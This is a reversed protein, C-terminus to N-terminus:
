GKAWRLAAELDELGEGSSYRIYASILIIPGNTGVVEVLVVRPGFPRLGQCRLSTRFAIAVKGLGQGQGLAKVLQYGRFINKGGMVFSPPDQVLIIDPSTRHELFEQQCLMWTTESRRFNLQMVSM